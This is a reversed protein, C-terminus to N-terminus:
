LYQGGGREGTKIITCGPLMHLEMIDFVCEQGRALADHTATIAENIADVESYPGECGTTHDKCYIVFESM